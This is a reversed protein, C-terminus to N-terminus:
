ITVKIVKTAKSYYKKKGYKKYSRVKIYRGKLKKKTTITKKKSSQVKKKVKKKSKGIYLTYGTYKKGKLKVVYKGNVKGIAKLKPATFKAKAKITPSYLSYLKNIKTRCRYSSKKGVTAKKDTYKVVGAKLTKIKKYKGKKSTKKYIETVAKYPTTVTLEVGKKTSKAKLGPTKIGIDNEEGVKGTGDNGENSLRVPIDKIIKQPGNMESVPDGSNVTLALSVYATKKTDFGKKARIVYAGDNEEVELYDESAPKIYVERTIDESVVNHNKIKISVKKSSLPINIKSLENGATNTPSLYPQKTVHVTWDNDVVHITKWKKGDNYQYAHCSLKFDGAKDGSYIATVLEKQKSYKFNNAGNDTWNCEDVYKGNNFWQSLWVSSLQDDENFSHNQNTYMWVDQPKETQEYFTNNGRRSTASFATVMPRIEVRINETSVIGNNNWRVTINGAGVTGIKTTVSLGNLRKIADVPSVTYFATTDNIFDLPVASLKCNATTFQNTSLICADGHKYGQVNDVQAVGNLLKITRAGVPTITGLAVTLALSFTTIKKIVSKIKM